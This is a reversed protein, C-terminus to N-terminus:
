RGFISDLLGAIGGRHEGEGPAAVLAPALGPLDGGPRDAHAALMVDHWIRAPLGGGTVAKMADGSDNGVWVGAVYDSTFGMFWADRYDSSTGTKGAAPFGLAAAKGTGRAIVQTMMRNMAAVEEPPVVQGLTGAERTFLVEGRRDAISAIGYPLVAEGGNAFPAYVGTFELLPVEASGLAISLEPKLAQTVGLRRATAIVNKVGAHQAIRVAASNLSEAFATEVTVPGEYRGTFNRPKWGGIAIPADTVMDDPGYGAELGALFVIPKFSSGPQRLAQTARNFQSDAYDRGGVMARVAGDPSLVVVAGQEVRLKAGSEALHKALIRETADQLRMDLTTAIVLDRDNVGVFGDVQGLVWDVFYRARSNSRGQAVATLTRLGDVQAAKATAPSIVGTEAMTALVVAARAASQKPDNTPSFRSPARLIGAIVAAQYVSLTAASRGFYREAAAEIGYTGAGLYVRNLYITLIQDKTFRRELKLALLAERIKRGYTRDPTLFLNKAVQQTITSGGQVVRGARLNAFAARLLGLPDVGFHDYFRRDEVAIVAGPVYKPLQDLRVAGRYIDGVSAIEAGSADVLTINPRRVLVAEDIAPLDLAFTGVALGIGAALWVLAALGYLLALRGPRPKRPRGGQPRDAQGRPARDANGGHKAKGM